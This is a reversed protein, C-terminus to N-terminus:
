YPPAGSDLPQQGDSDPEIVREVRYGNMLVLTHEPYKARHQAILQEAALRVGRDFTRSLSCLLCKVKYHVTGSDKVTRYM